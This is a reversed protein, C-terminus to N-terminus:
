GGERDKNYMNLAMTLMTATGLQLPDHILRGQIQIRAEKTLGIPLGCAAIVTDSRVLDESIFDEAPSADFIISHNKLAPLIDKAVSIELESALAKTKDPDIDFISVAAGLEKLAICAYGGVRGAGIVLVKKRSIGKLVLTLATVYGRATAESNDVINGTETNIAVFLNDDALFLIKAGRGFGEALGAVDHAQTVFAPYGLYRIISEVALSFGPILGKGATIPVVAIPKPSINKNLNEKELGAALYAISALSSGTKQILEQDYDPLKEGLGQLLSESLRTM